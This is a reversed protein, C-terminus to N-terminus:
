LIFQGSVTNILVVLLFPIFQWSFNCFIGLIDLCFGSQLRHMTAFLIAGAFNPNDRRFKLYTYFVLELKEKQIKESLKGWFHTDVCKELM